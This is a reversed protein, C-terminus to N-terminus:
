SRAKRSRLVFRVRYAAVRYLADVVVCLFGAVYYAVLVTVAFIVLFGVADVLASM